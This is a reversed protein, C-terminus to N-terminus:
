SVAVPSSTLEEGACEIPFFVAGEVVREIEGGRGVWEGNADEGSDDDRM